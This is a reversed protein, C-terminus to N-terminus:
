LEFPTFEETIEVPPPPAPKLPPSDIASPSFVFTDVMHQGYRNILLSFLEACNSVGTRDLLAEIKEDDSPKSSFRRNM